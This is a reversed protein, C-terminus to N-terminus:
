GCSRLQFSPPMASSSITRSASQRKGIVVSQASSRPEGALVWHIHSRPSTAKGPYGSRLCGPIALRRKDASGGAVSM